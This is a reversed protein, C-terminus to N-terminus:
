PAITEFINYNIYNRKCVAPTNNLQESVKTCTDKVLEKWTKKDSPPSSNTLIDVALQNAVMTRFDKPSYVRGVYRKIFKTMQYADVDLFKTTPAVERNKSQQMNWITWALKKDHIVYYNGVSKKGLFNFEVLGEAVNIKVHKNLCTTLGYTQVFESVRGKENPHPKTHYGEASSENGIRMGTQMLILVAIASQAHETDYNGRNSLRLFKETLEERQHLLKFARNYKNGNSGKLKGVCSLIRQKLKRKHLTAM